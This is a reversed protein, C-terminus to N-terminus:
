KCVEARTNQACVLKKLGEILAQQQKAQEQLSNLQQQQNAIKADRDELEAHLGQIAALAVGDADITTIHRNDEGVQFAQYFDQAMAGLHRISTEQSKYNWTSIPLALVGRLVSRSDVPIFNEKMNRDSVSSWAGGGAALKVGATLTANTFLRYGGSARVAFENNATSDIFDTTSEDAIVISGAREYPTSCDTDGAVCGTRARQGLAISYDGIASSRYGFAVSGVGDSYANYGGATSYSGTARSQYGIAFSNIGSATTAYGGAWSYYGINADDWQTGGTGISGARFAVKNPYWMMREGAGTAPIPGTGLTGLAVFGGAQDFRFRDTLTTSNFPYSRFRAIMGSRNVNDSSPNDIRFADSTQAPTSITVRSDGVNIAGSQVNRIVLTSPNIGTSQQTGDGFTLVGGTGLTLNSATITSAAFNGSADRRVVASATNANTAANALQVGTSVDAATQGGVASVVTANQTGTVDGSLNGSFNTASSSHIAYPTSTIQQRPSLTTYNTDSPKKVSIELYRDAGTFASAGFDLQVAFVGNTVTVGSRTVTVPSPQPQPTGDTATDYLKFQFDYTGNAAASSDALRGQYTFTTTQARTAVSCACLILISLSLVRMTRATLRERNM